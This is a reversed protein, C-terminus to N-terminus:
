SNKKYSITYELGNEGATDGVLDNYHGASNRSGPIVIDKDGDVAMRVLGSDGYRYKKLGSNIRSIFNEIVEKQYEKAAEPEIAGPEHYLPMDVLVGEDGKSGLMIIKRAIPKSIKYEKAEESKKFRVIQRGEDIDDILNEDGIFDDADEIERVVVAQIHADM